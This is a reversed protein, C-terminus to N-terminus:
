QETIRYEYRDFESPTDVEFRILDTEEEITAERTFSDVENGDEDYTTVEVEVDLPASDTEVTFMMEAPGDPNEDDFRINSSQVSIEAADGMCGAVSAISAVGAGALLRRRTAPM